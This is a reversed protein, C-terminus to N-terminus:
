AECKMSRMSRRVQDMRGRLVMFYTDFFELYKDCYHVWVAYTAGTDVLDFPGSIFPHGRMVLAHLIRCVMWFNLVVQAANYLVMSERLLVKVNIKNELYRTSFMRLLPLSCLYFTTLGLTLSWHHLKAQAGPIQSEDVFTLKGWVAFIGMLISICTYRAALSPPSLVTEVPPASDAKSNMLVTEKASSSVCLESSAM